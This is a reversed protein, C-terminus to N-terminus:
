YSLYHDPHMPSALLNWELLDLNGDKAFTISLHDVKDYYIKIAWYELHTLYQPRPDLLRKTFQVSTMTILCWSSQM